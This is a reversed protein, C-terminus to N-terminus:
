SFRHPSYSILSLIFLNCIGMSSSVMVGPLAHAPHPAARAALSAKLAMPGLAMLCRIGQQGSEVVAWGAAVETKSLPPAISVPVHLPSFAM